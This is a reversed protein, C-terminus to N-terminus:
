WKPTSPSACDARISRWMHAKYLHEQVCVFHSPMSMKYYNISDTILGYSCARSSATRVFVVLCYAGLKLLARIETEPKNELLRCTYIYHTDKSNHQGCNVTEMGASCPQWM